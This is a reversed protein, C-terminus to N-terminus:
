AQTSPLGIVVGDTSKYVGNRESGAYITQPSLPNIALARIDEGQLDNNVSIWVKGAAHLSSSALMLILCFFVSLRLALEVSYKLNKCKRM